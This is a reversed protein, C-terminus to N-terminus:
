LKRAAAFEESFGTAVELGAITKRWNCFVDATGTYTHNHGFWLAKRMGTCLRDV